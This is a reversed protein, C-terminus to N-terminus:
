GARSSSREDSVAMDAARKMQAAYDEGFLVECFRVAVNAQMQRFPLTSPECVRLTEVLSETASETYHQLDSFTRLTVENIALESAYNRCVGVFDILGVTEEIEKPDLKLGPLIDKDPRHRLLRRVRAPVAELESKLTSSIEIKIAALRKGWASEPRIDLEARLGRLGEHITRLHDPLSNLRGQRIDRRLDAVIRSLDDIVMTVGLGYNTEAVKNEDDSGAMATALRIIQWPHALRQMLLSLIFPLTQPTQLSPVDIAELVSVLKSDALNRLNGTIRNGLMEIAERNKLVSGVSLLDQLVNPGGIRNKGSGDSSTSQDIAAAAAIQLKRVAEEVEPESIKLAAEFERLENAIAESALWNWISLLSSRRIQGPRAVSNNEVLFPELPRFVLRSPEVSRQRENDDSARVVKRLLDLVLLAVPVNDGQEVAREFERMLLTQSKLPLQALYDRLREISQKPLGM